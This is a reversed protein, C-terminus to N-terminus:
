TATSGPRAAGRIVAQVRPQSRVFEELGSGPRFYVYRDAEQVQIGNLRDRLKVPITSYGSVPGFAALQRPGLPLVVSHADGLAIGNRVGAAAQDHRVTLAPVDGILFQGREPTLIELGFSTVLDCGQKFLAELRADFLM